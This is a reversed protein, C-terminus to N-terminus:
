QAHNISVFMSQDLREFFDVRMAVNRRSRDVIGHHHHKTLFSNLSVQHLPVIAATM